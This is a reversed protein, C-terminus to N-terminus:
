SSSAAARKPPGKPANRFPRAPPLGKRVQDPQLKGIRAKFLSTEAALFQRRKDESNCFALRLIHHSVLDKQFGEPKRLDEFDFGNEKALKLAEADLEDPKLGRSRAQEIGRLVKLREWAYIEFDELQLPPPRAARRPASPTLAPVLQQTPSFLQLRSLFRVTVDGEPSDAYMSVGCVATPGGGGM